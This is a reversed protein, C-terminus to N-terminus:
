KNINFIRFKVGVFVDKDTNIGASIITKSNIQASLDVGPALKGLSTNTQANVGAFMAFRSTVTTEKTITKEQVVITQPKITYTPKLDVLTGKVKTNVKLKLYNDEYESVYERQRVGNLFVQLKQLSDKASKYDQVMAEDVDSEVYILKDYYVISDKGKSPIESQNSPKLFTGDRGPVMVNVDKVITSTKTDGDGQCSHQLILLMLLVGIIAIYIWKTKTTDM